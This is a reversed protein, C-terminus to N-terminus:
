AAKEKNWTGYLTWCETMQANYITKDGTTHDLISISRLGAYVRSFHLAELRASEKDECNVHMAPNGNLFTATVIFITMKVGV